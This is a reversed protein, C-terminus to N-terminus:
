RFSREGPRSTRPRSLAPAQPLRTRRPVLEGTAAPQPQSDGAAQQQKVRNEAANIQAQSPASPNGDLRLRPLAVDLLGTCGRALFHAVPLPTRVLAEVVALAMWYEFTNRVASRGPKENM